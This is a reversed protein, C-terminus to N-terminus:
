YCSAAPLGEGGSGRRLSQHHQWFHVLLAALTSFRDHNSPQHEFALAADAAAEHWKSRRAQLDFRLTLFKASAPQQLFAPPLPESLLQEAETFKKQAILIRTLSELQSMAQPSEGEGRKRWMALVGRQAIEAEALKGEAELTWSLSRLTYLVDLHDEGLVKRQISLAAKLVTHSDKLNDQKKLLQGLLTLSRAVEPHEDGLLKRQM